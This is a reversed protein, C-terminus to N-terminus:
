DHNAWVYVHELGLVLPIAFLIFLPITRSAAGLPRRILVGWEGGTVYQLCMVAVSGAVIDFWFIYAPLWGRFFEAPNTFWGVGAVVLGIIGVVLAPVQARAVGTQVSANMAADG